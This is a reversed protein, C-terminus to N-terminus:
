LARKPRRKAGKVSQRTIRVYEELRRDAADFAARIAMPLDDGGQRNIAIESGPVLLSIRVRVRDRLQHQGPGDVTVRCGKVGGYFHSLKETRERIHEALSEPLLRSRDMIRLPIPM